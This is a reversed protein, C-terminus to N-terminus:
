KPKRNNYFSFLSLTAFSAISIVAITTSFRVLSNQENSLLKSPQSIADPYAVCKNIDEGDPPVFNSISSCPVQIPTRLAFFLGLFLAIIIRTSLKNIKNVM